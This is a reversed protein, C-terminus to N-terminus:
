RSCMPCGTWQWNEQGSVAGGGQQTEGLARRFRLSLAPHDPWDHGGYPECHQVKNDSLVELLV